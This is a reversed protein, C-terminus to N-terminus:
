NSTFNVYLTYGGASMAPLPVTTFAYGQLGFTSGPPAEEIGSDVVEDYPPNATTYCCYTVLYFLTPDPGSAQLTPTSLNVDVTASNTVNYYFHIGLEPPLSDASSWWVVPLEPCALGCLNAHSLEPYYGTITGFYTINGVVALIRQDYPNLNPGPPGPAGAGRNALGFFNTFM